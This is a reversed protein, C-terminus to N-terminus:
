WEGSVVSAADELRLARGAVCLFAETSAHAVAQNLTGLADRFDGGVQSSPHVGLGVEESVIITDGVRAVLADCLQTTPTEFSDHRVLWTGLSDVLVTGTTTALAEPLDLGCELTTWTAPRREQHIQVRRALADDTVEATAIYCVGGALSGAIQEAIASKGSRAGGLLLVRM